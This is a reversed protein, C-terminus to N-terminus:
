GFCGVPDGDREATSSEPADARDNERDTGPENSDAIRHDAHILVGERFFEGTATYLLLPWVPKGGFHIGLERCILFLVAQLGTPEPLTKGAPIEAVKTADNAAHLLGDVVDALHRIFEYRANRQETRREDVVVTECDTDVTLATGFRDLWAPDNLVRDLVFRASELMAAPITQQPMLVDMADEHLSVYDRDDVLDALGSHIARAHTAVAVRAKNALAVQGLYGRELCDRRHDCTAHCVSRVVSLGLSEAADADANWCNQKKGSSFRGPYAAADIGANRCAKVVEDCNEHTPQISLSREALRFAELDAHSKGAGTPSQDLWIGPKGVLEIRRAALEDRYADLSVTPGAPVASVIAVPTPEIRIARRMRLLFEESTLRLM